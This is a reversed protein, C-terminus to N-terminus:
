TLPDAATPLCQQARGLRRPHQGVSVPSGGTWVEYRWGKAQCIRNTWEFVAAAQPQDAFQKPKVDVLLPPGADGILLLDPVHRRLQTGDRGSLWMPQSAIWRVAPDFDALWLRDLVLRSEYPVHGGTTASWFLGSYHRQGSHSGVKRVPLARSVRAADLAGVTTAVPSGEADVYRVETSLVADAAM